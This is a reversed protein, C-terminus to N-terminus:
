VEVTEGDKAVSSDIKLDKYLLDAFASAAEPEGHVIKAKSPSGQCDNVWTKLELRDGHASLGNIKEVEARVEVPKGFIKIEKEGEILDRGRTGEAQYGVFLATTEEKSLNQKMHHLIRGGTMMGSASIIIRPGKLANISKSDKRDRCFKINDTLLPNEGASIIEQSEEDFDHKFKRYIRTADVAMPSDVFVPLTPIKGARELKGLEYLLTQTRGIAFAPIILPGRKEVVKKIVSELKGPVEGTRVERKRNGYTSECILLDGALNPAPDPLIATGYRGIDGSFTIGKGQIEFFMSTSGLIHGACRPTVSCKPLIKTEEDRPITKLMALTEKAHKMEYLPKAPKHKSLKHKNMYRAQEKQLHASDPLLLGLLERTAETCYIPGKFGHKVVLPLYGTHDIHAHTLIIASLKHPEFEPKDWNRARLEKRGQFLGCDVLLKNDGWQVLFKSGTVCGAAGYFSVRVTKSM